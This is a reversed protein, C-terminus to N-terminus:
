DPQAIFEPRKERGDKIVGAEIDKLMQARVADRVVETLTKEETSAIYEIYAFINKPLWLNMRCREIPKEKFVEEQKKEM